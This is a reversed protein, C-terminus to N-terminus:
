NKRIKEVGGRMNTFKKKKEVQNCKNSVNQSNDVLENKIGYTTNILWQRM